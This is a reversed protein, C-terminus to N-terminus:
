CLKRSLDIVDYPRIVTFVFYAICPQTDDRSLQKLHNSLISSILVSNENTMKEWINTRIGCM